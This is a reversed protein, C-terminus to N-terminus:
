PSLSFSLKKYSLRDRYMTIVLCNNEDGYIKCKLVPGLVNLYMTM